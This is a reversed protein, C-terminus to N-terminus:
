SPNKEKQITEERRFTIHYSIERERGAGGGGEEGREGERKGGGEGRRGGKHYSDDRLKIIIIIKIKQWTCPVNRPVPKNIIM